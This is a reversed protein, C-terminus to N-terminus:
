KIKKLLKDFLEDNIEEILKPKGNKACEIKEINYRECLEIYMKEAKKLYEVNQEHQDAKETRHKRLEVAGETPMHLFFTFDSKPLALMDLELKEMFTLFKEREIKDEIKSGQHALNSFMYRDLIVFDNQELIKLLREKNYARDATYYLSAVYPSVNVAGEPFFGEGFKALYPGAIIKGTPSDYFPMSLMTAKYGLSMLRKILLKAQTEKGSCDTGEITIIKGM